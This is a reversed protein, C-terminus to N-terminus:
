KITIVTDETGITVKYTGKGRKATANKWTNIFSSKITVKDSDIVMSDAPVTGATKVTGEITVPTITVSTPATDATYYIVIDNTGDSALINGHETFSWTVTVDSGELNAASWDGKKNCAGTLYMETAQWDDDAKGSVESYKYTSDSSDYKIEFNAPTGAVQATVSAVSDEAIADTNTGDTVALYLKAETDDAAFTSSESMKIDKNAAISATVTIDVAVSSKNIAKMKASDATYKNAASLFFVGTEGTFTAGSYKANSTGKILDEPDLIYNYTGDPITPLTVSIAKKEVHGEFDGTGTSTTTNSGDAALVTMNMGLAMTVALTGALVKKLKM